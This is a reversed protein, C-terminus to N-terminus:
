VNKTLSVRVTLIAFACIIIKTHRIQLYKIQILMIPLIHSFETVYYRNREGM